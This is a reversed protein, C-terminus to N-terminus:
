ESGSRRLTKTIVDLMQEVLLAQDKNLKPLVARLEREAELLLKIGKTRESELVITGETALASGLSYGADPYDQNMEGLAKRAYKAALELYTMAQKTERGTAKGNTPSRIIIAAQDYYQKAISNDIRAQQKLKPGAASATELALIAGRFDGNANLAQALREYLYPCKPQLRIAAQFDTVASDIKGSFLEQTARFRYGGSYNPYAAIVRSFDDIAANSDGLESHAIGLLNLAQPSGPELRKMREFDALALQRDGNLLHAAGRKGFASSNKPDHQVVYNLAGIAEPYRFSCLYATGQIDLAESVNPQRQPPRKEYLELADQFHGANVYAAAMVNVETKSEGLIKQALECTAGQLGKETVPQVETFWPGGSDDTRAELLFSNKGVVILDGSVVTQTDLLGRIFAVVSDLSVGKVELMVPSPNQTAVKLDVLSRISEPTSPLGERSDCPDATVQQSVVCMLHGAKGGAQNQIIRLSDFVADAATDGSFPLLADKCDHFAEFSSHCDLVSHCRTTAKLRRPSDM